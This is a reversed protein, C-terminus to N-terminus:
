GSNSPTPRRRRPPRRRRRRQRLVEGRQGGPEVGGAPFAVPGVLDDRRRSRSRRQDDRGQAQVLGAPEGAGGGGCGCPQAAASGTGAQGRHHALRRASGLDAAGAGVRQTRDRQRSQARGPRQCHAALAPAAALLRCHCQAADATRALAGGPFRGQAPQRRRGGRARPTRPRAVAGAGSGGRGAAHRRQRHRPPRRRRQRAVRAMRTRRPRRQRQAAARHWAVTGDRQAGRHDGRHRHASRQSQLGVPAPRRHRRARARADAVDGPQRRPLRPGRDAVRHREDRLRVGGQLPSREGPRCGRRPARAVAGTGHRDAGATRGPAHPLWRRRCGRGPDQRCRRRLDGLSVHDADAADGARARLQRCVQFGDIDPLNIDLVILDPRDRQALDLAEYGSAATVVSFGVSELVHSTAYRTAANDDVVLVSAERNGSM